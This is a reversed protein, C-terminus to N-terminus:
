RRKVEACRAKINLKRLEQRTQLAFNKRNTLLSSWLLYRGANLHQLFAHSRKRLFIYFPCNHAKQM